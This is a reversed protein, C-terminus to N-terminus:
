NSVLGEHEISAPTADDVEISEDVRADEIEEVTHQYYKPIHAM